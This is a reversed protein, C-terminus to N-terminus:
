SGDQGRGNFSFGKSLRLFFRSDNSKIANRLYQGELRVNFEKGFRKQIGGTTVYADSLEEQLDQVRYRNFNANAYLEMSPTLRINVFGTVGNNDGGYGSQHRWVLSWTGGTVGLSGSWSNEDSYFNINGRAVIRIHRYVPRHFEFRAQRYRNFDILSFLSNAPVSPERWDFEGSFYYKGPSYTGRILIEGMRLSAANYAFRGYMSWIGSRYKGDLGLRNYSVSGGSRRMMWHLGLRSSSNLKYILRGGAAAYDSLSQIKDPEASSVASGGFLDMEFDRLFRYRIRLGDLLTSGVSSYVFQRGLYIDSGRPLGTLRAYSAYVFTQPNTDFKDALDTMWRLHSHFSLRPGTPSDSTNFNLRISEYLRVHDKDGDEYVYLESSLRGKLGAAGVQSFLMVTLVIGCTFVIIRYLISLNPRHQRSPKCM